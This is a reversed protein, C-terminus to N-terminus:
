KRVRVNPGSGKGKNKVKDIEEKEKKKAELLKNYYFRRWQIPMSYLETWTFNEGFYVM